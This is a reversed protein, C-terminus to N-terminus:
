QASIRKKKMKNIWMIFTSKLIKNLDLASSNLWKNLYFLFLVCIGDIFTLINSDPSKVLIKNIGSFYGCINPLFNSINDLFMHKPKQM